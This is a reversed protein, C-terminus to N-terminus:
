NPKRKDRAQRQIKSIWDVITRHAVEVEGSKILADACETYTYYKASMWADIVTVRDQEYKKSKANGGESAKALVIVKSIEASYYENKAALTSGYVRNAICLCNLTQDNDNQEIFFETLAVWLFTSFLGREVINDLNNKFDQNIFKEALQITSEKTIGYNGNTNTIELKAEDTLAYMKASLSLMHNSESILNNQDYLFFLDSDLKVRLAQIQNRVQEIM